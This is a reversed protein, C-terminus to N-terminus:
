FFVLGLINNQSLCHLFDILNEFPAESNGEFCSLHPPRPSQSESPNISVRSGTNHLKLM